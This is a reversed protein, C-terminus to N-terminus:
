GGLGGGRALVLVFGPIALAMGDDTLQVTLDSAQLFVEGFVAELGDAYAADSRPHDEM